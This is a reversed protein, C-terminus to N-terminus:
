NAIVPPGKRKLWAFVPRLSRIHRLELGASISRMSAAKHIGHALQSGAPDALALSYRLCNYISTGHCGPKPILGLKRQM